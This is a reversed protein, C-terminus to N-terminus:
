LREIRRAADDLIEAIHHALDSDGGSALRQGVATLLNVSAREISPQRSREARDRLGALRAKVEALRDAEEALVAEGAPTIAFKRRQGETDQETIVGEDALLSLAPYVVGPSPSYVGGALEEIAKILDYGHRPEERILSLLLLRLEEGSVKRAGRRRPGGHGGGGFPSGFDGFPGGFGGWGRAGGWGSGAMAALAALKRARRGGWDHCDHRM